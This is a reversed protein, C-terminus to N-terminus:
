CAERTKPSDKSGNTVQGKPAYFHNAVPCQQSVGKPLARSQSLQLQFLSASAVLERKKTADLIIDPVLM